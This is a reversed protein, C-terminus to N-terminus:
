FALHGLFGAENHIEEEIYLGSSGGGTNYNPRILGFWLSGDPARAVEIPELDCSPDACVPAGLKGGIGISDLGGAHGGRSSGFWLRGEPGVAVSYPSGDPIAFEALRGSSTLRGVRSPRYYAWAGFWVTGEPGITLAVPYDKPAIPRRVIRGGPGIHSLSAKSAAGEGLFGGCKQTFWPTGDPAVDLAYARCGHPLAFRRVKGSGISLREITESSRTTQASERILWVAGDSVSVSRISWRGRGVTYQRLLGGTPSLRSIEFRHDYPRGRFGSVWPDGEPGVTVGTVVSFGAVERESVTGDPAVSGIMSRSQGSWRTGREPVFWATGDAGIAPSRAHTADALEYSTSEAAAAIAPALTLLVLGAAVLLSRRLISRM